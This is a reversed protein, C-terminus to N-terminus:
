RNLYEEMNMHFLGYRGRITEREVRLRFDGYQKPTNNLPDDPARYYSEFFRLYNDSEAM